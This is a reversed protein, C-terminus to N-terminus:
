REQLSEDDSSNGSWPEPAIKQRSKCCEKFARFWTEQNEEEKAQQHHAYIDDNGEVEEAEEAGQHIKRLQEEHHRMAIIAAVAMSRLTYPLRM